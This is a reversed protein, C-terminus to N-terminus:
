DPRASVTGGSGFLAEGGVELLWYLLVMLPLAAWLPVPPATAAHQAKLQALLTARRSRECQVRRLLDNQADSELVEAVAAATAQSCRPAPQRARM